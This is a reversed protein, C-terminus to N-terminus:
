RCWVPGGSGAWRARWAGKEHAGEVGPQCYFVELRYFSRFPWGASGVEERPRGFLVRSVAAKLNDSHPTAWPPGGLRAFADVHGELFAEQGQTVFARHTAAGSYSLRFTFLFM